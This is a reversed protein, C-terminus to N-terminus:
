KAREEMDQLAQEAYNDISQVLHRRTTSGVLLLTEPDVLAIEEYTAKGSTEMLLEFGDLYTSQTTLYKPDKELLDAATRDYLLNLKAAALYPLAKISM